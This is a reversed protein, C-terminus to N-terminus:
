KSSIVDSYKSVELTLNSINSFDTLSNKYVVLTAYDKIKPTVYIECKRSILTSHM